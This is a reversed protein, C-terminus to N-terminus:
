VEEEEYQPKYSSQVKSKTMRTCNCKKKYTTVKPAYDDKEVGYSTGNTMATKVLMAKAESMDMSLIIGFTVLCGLTYIFLERM